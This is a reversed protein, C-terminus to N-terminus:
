TAINKKVLADLEKVAITFKAADEEDVAAALDQNVIKTQQIKLTMSLPINKNNHGAIAAKTKLLAIQYCKLSNDNGTVEDKKGLEEKARELVQLALLCEVLLQSAVEVTNETVIYCRVSHRGYLHTNALAQLANRAEQKTVYEVFAFGKHNGFSMLLRSSKIQGFPSFLQRLDKKTAEFAVNMVILKTSSGDNEIKKHLQEDKKVHGLQLILAHGDLVTGQLDRCVNLSTDVSDFEIFGYGKSVYKGNKRHKKVRVSLYREEEM